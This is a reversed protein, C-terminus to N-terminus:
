SQLTIERIDTSMLLLRESWQHAIQFMKKNIIIKHWCIWDIKWLFFWIGNTEQSTCKQHIEWDFVIGRPVLILWWLGINNVADAIPMQISVNLMPIVAMIMMHIEICWRKRTQGPRPGQRQHHHLDGLRSGAKSNSVEFHDTIKKQDIMKIINVFWILTSDGFHDNVWDFVYFFLKSKKDIIKLLCKWIYWHYM